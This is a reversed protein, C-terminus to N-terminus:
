RLGEYVGEIQEAAREWSFCQEVRRRLKRGRERGEEPSDLAMRIAGALSEGDGPAAYYGLEELYERHVPTDFAAVPLGAAMYTLLKGSGETASLKPAVAVDGLSLLAPAEEYAVAGTFTVRGELGLEAALWRYREVNPFGMVLGHPTAPEGALERLAQLLLDTGQYPALLGLYVVMPREEPLGWRQRRAALTAAAFEERPRFLGPDVSDHLTHIRQAPVGYREALLQAAHGSSALLAAPRQDIFRELRQVLPVAVGPRLFGHDLMEATLSGQFDFVVPIRGRIGPSVRHLLAALAWGILAGEHLYAHIVQPRGGPFRLAAALATPGLLGDLVLKRWSSGVAIQGTRPWLRPRATALGAVERGTPYTALRITHGRAALATLQGRIRVHCGYDAFFGTPAIALIRLGSM